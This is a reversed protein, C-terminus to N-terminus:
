LAAGWASTLCRGLCNSCARHFAEREDGSVSLAATAAPLSSSRPCPALASSTSTEATHGCCASLRWRCIVPSSACGSDSEAGPCQSRAATGQFENCTVPVTSQAWEGGWAWRLASALGATPQAEDGRGASSLDQGRAPWPRVAIMDHVCVTHLRLCPRTLLPPAPCARASPRGSVHAAAGGDGARSAAGGAVGGPPGAGCPTHAPGSSLDM